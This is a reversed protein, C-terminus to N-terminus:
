WVYADWKDSRVGARANLLSLPPLRSYISDTAASYISSRYTYDGGLYVEADRAGFPVPQTVEGGAAIAWRPTGALAAGNLNCAALNANELGCPASPYKDYIADNYTASAYLSVHDTPQAQLDVEVGQVRVKQVNALYMK